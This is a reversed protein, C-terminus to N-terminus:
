RGGRKHGRGGRRNNNNNNESREDKKEEKDANKRANRQQWHRWNRTLNGRRQVFKGVLDKLQCPLEEVIKCFEQWDEDSLSRKEFPKLKETYKKRLESLAKRAEEEKKTWEKRKEEWRDEDQRGEAREATPPPGQPLPPPTMPPEEPPLPPHLDLPPPLPPVKEEDEIPPTSVEEEEEISPTLEEPPKPCDPPTAPTNAASGLLQERAQFVGTPPLVRLEDLHESLLHRIMDEEEEKRDACLACLYTWDQHIEPHSERLHQRLDELGERSYRATCHPCELSSQLPYAITIVSVSMGATPEEEVESIPPEEAPTITVTIPHGEPTAPVESEKPPERSPERPPSEETRKEEDSVIVPPPHSVV